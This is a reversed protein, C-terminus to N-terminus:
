IVVDEISEHHFNFVRYANQTTMEAVEFITKRKLEAVKAAIFPIYQPENPKGRFPCPALFPSDTELLIRELPIGRIVENIEKSNKFTVIGGIGFYFGKKICWNAMGLDGSFCHLVVKMDQAKEGLIRMTDAHADRDHIIIPLDFKKALDIQARFADIQIEKPSHFYFYDLGIEGVAVIKDSVLMKELKVLEEQHMKKSEHPHFGVAAYVNNFQVAYSLNKESSKLDTGITIFIKIGKRNADEIVERAERKIIDLHCHTEIFNMNMNINM